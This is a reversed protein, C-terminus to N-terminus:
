WYFLLKIICNKFASQCRASNLLSHVTLSFLFSKKFTILVLFAACAVSLRSAVRAPLVGPAASSAASPGWSLGVARFLSGRFSSVKLLVAWGFRRCGSAVAAFPSPRLGRRRSSCLGCRIFAAFIGRSSGVPRLVRVFSGFSPGSAPSCIGRASSRM